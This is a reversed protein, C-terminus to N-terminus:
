VVTGNFNNGPLTTTFAPPTDSERLETNVANAEDVGAHVLEIGEGTVGRKVRLFGGNVTSRITM